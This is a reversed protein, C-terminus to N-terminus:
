SALIKKLGEKAKLLIKLRFERIDENSTIKALRSNEIYKYGNIIEKPRINGSSFILANSMTVGNIKSEYFGIMLELNAISNILENVLDIITFEMSRNTKLDELDKVTFWVLKDNFDSQLTKLISGWTKIDSVERSVYMKKIIDDRKAGLEILKQSLELADADMFKSKFHNTKIIISALLCTAVSSSIPIKNILEYVIKATSGANIDIYNITGFKTNTYDCDINIVPKNQFLSINQEHVKEMLALGTIGICIIIDYNTAGSASVENPTLSKSNHSIIFKLCNEEIDYKIKKLDKKAVKVKVVFNDSFEVKNINNYQPLFDLYSNIPLNKDNSIIDVKKDLNVLHEYLGLCACLHEQSLSNNFVLLVQKSESILKNIEPILKEM